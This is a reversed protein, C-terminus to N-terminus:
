EGKFGCLRYGGNSAFVVEDGALRFVVVDGPCFATTWRLGEKIIVRLEINKDKRSPIIIVTKAPDVTLKSLKNEQLFEIEGTDAHWKQVVGTIQVTQRDVGGVDVTSMQSPRADTTKQVTIKEAVPNKKTIGYKGLLWWGIGMGVILVVVYRWKM